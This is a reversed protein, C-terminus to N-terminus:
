SWHLSIRCSLRELQNRKSLTRCIVVFRQPNPSFMICTSLFILKSWNECSKVSASSSVELPDPLRHPKLRLVLDVPFRRLNLFSDEVSNTEIRMMKANGGCGVSSSLELVSWFMAGFSVLLLSWYADPTAPFLLEIRLSESSRWEYANANLSRWVDYKTLTIM